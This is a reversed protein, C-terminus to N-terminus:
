ENVDASFIWDKLDADDGFIADVFQGYTYQAQPHHRTALEDLKGTLGTKEIFEDRSINHFQVFNVINYDENYTGEYKGDSDKYEEIFSEIQDSTWNGDIAHYFFQHVTCSGEDGGTGDLLEEQTLDDGDKLNEADSVAPSQHCASVFVCFVVLLVIWLKKM